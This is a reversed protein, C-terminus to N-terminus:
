RHKVSVPERECWADIQGGAEADTEANRRRVDLGRLSDRALFDEAALGKSWDRADDFVDINRREICAVDKRIHSARSHKPDPKWQAILLRVVELPEARRVPARTMIVIASAVSHIADSHGTV